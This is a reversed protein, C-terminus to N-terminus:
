QGGVESPARRQFLFENCGISRVGRVTTTSFGFAEVRRVVEDTSAYEYPYGGLWDRIDSFFDMGRVSAYHRIYRIPNKGRALLGCILYCSYLGFLMQKGMGPAHNYWRKLRVWTESTGELRSYSHNYIALLFQGGHEVLQGANQIAQWMNGTHHLVGWSYVIDAPPLSQLVHPDLISGRHITWRQEEPAFRRKTERTAAISFEDADISVVSKAGLRVAALSFIGSGSGIDYFRKDRLGDPGFFEQLSAVAQDVKHQDVHQVYSQWNRGFSFRGPLAYDHEYLGSSSM